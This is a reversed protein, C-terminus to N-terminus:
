LKTYLSKLHTALCRLTYLVVTNSWYQLFVKNGFVRKCTLCVNSRTKVQSSPYPIRPLGCWPHLSVYNWLTISMHVHTYWRLTAHMFVDHLMKHRRSGTVCAMIGLSYAHQATCSCAFQVQIEFVKCLNSEYEKGREHGCTMINKKLVIREDEAINEVASEWRWWRVPKCKLRPRVFAGKNSFGLM